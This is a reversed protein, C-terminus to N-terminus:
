GECEGRVCVEGREAKRVCRVSAGTVSIEVRVCKAHTERMESAIM